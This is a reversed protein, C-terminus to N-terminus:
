CRFIFAVDCINIHLLTLVFVILYAKWPQVDQIMPQVHDDHTQLATNQKCVVGHHAHM